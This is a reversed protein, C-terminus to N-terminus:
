FGLGAEVLPAQSMLEAWLGPTQLSGFLTHGLRGKLAPMFGKRKDSRNKVSRLLM